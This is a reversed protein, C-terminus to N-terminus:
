VTAAGRGFPPPAMMQIASFLVEFRQQRAQSFLPDKNAGFAANTEQWDAETLHQRALPLVEREELGVHDREFAAYDQLLTRFADIKKRDKRAAALAAALAELKTRGVFHQDRLVNLVAEAQPWRKRLLRFLYEDEKPHHFRDLFSEIYEIMAEPLAFNPKPDSALGAAVKEFCVLLADFHRHDEQISAIAFTM